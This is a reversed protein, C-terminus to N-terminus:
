SCLNIISAIEKFLMLNKGKNQGRHETSNKAKFSWFSMIFNNTHKGVLDSCLIKQKITIKPIINNARKFM